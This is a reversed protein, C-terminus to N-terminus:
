LHLLLAVPYKWLTGSGEHVDVTVILAFFITYITDNIYESRSKQGGMGVMCIDVKWEWKLIGLLFFHRFHLLPIVICVFAGLRHMLARAIWGDHCLHLAAVYAM